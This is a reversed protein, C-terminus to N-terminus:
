KSKTAWRGSREGKRREGEQEIMLRKRQLQMKVGTREVIASRSVVGVCTKLAVM